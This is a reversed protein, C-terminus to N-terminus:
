SSEQHKEWFARIGNFTEESLMHEIRCADKEAIKPSVGLIKELFGTLVVHRAYIGRAKEEGAPTLILEGKEGRELLGLHCLVDMARSISARSVELTKALDTSRVRKGDRTMMYIHEIYNEGSENLERIEPLHSSDITNGPLVNERKLFSKIGQITSASVVHEIRCADIDAKEQSICAVHVLFSRLVRHYSAVKRAIRKGEETLTIFAGKELIVLGKDRLLGVARSVSPRSINLKSAIDVGRVFPSITSLILITELYNEESESDIYIAVATRRMNWLCSYVLSPQGSGHPYSIRAACIFDFLQVFLQYHDRFFM